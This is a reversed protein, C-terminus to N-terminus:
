TCYAATDDMQKVTMNFAISCLYFQIYLGPPHRHPSNRRGNQGDM